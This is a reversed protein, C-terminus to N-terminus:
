IFMKHPKELIEKLYTLFAAAPAGDVLRHDFSLSLTCLPRICIQGRYVAPTDVTRGVGLIATEPPNIIPTFADVAYMGLNSLTFTGGTIDDPTLKGRRAKRALQKVEASIQRLTKRNAEKVVPVFLGADTAVAVGINIEELEKVGETCLVANMYPYRELAFAVARVLFDTVSVKDRESFGENVRARYEQLEGMDVSTTLTVQANTLHSRVMNEAIIRRVGEFPMVRKAPREDAPLEWAQAWSSLAGGAAVQPGEAATTPAAERKKEELYREVDERTIRGEPGTGTLEALNLGHEEALKRAIPSAKLREGSARGGAVVPAAGVTPEATPAVSGAEALLPEINEEAGAIIGLVTGVPVTLGQSVLIKRLLGDAKAEVKAIIKDTIIEVIVEGKKVAEGEKKFWKGVKGQKMTLGLKPMLVKEAM